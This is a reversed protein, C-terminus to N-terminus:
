AAVLSEMFLELDERRYRLQGNPLRKGEIFRGSRKWKDITNRTVGLEDCVEQYTMWM